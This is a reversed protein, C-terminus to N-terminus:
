SNERIVEDRIADRIKRHLTSDSWIAEIDSRSLYENVEHLLLWPNPKQEQQTDANM